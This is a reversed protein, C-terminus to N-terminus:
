RKHKLRSKLRSLRNRNFAAIAIAAGTLSIVPIIHHNFLLWGAYLLLTLSTIDFAIEWRPTPQWRKKLEKPVTETLVAKLNEAWDFESALIGIGALFVFVGGPGPLSGIIPSAVICLMGVVFVIPTRISQPIAKWWSKVRHKM